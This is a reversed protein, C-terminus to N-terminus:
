EYQIELIQPFEYNDGTAIATFGSETGSPKLILGETYLLRRESPETLIGTLDVTVYGDNPSAAALQGTQGIKNNWTSGFSCFRATPAFVSLKVGTSYFCPIHLLVKRVYVSYLEPIKSFDPRTYLWQEGFWETRGIFAIGGFANNEDPRISEVTTDQFLKPEYLNIEFRIWANGAAAATVEYTYEDIQSYAVEAPSCRSNTDTGTLPSLSFFPRFEEQMIAFSKSCHRVRSFPKDTRITLKVLASNVTVALGNLTPVLEGREECLRGNQLAFGDIPLRVSASGESNKLVIQDRYVTVKANSGNFTFAEGAQEFRRCVLKLSEQSYIPTGFCYATTGIKEKVLLRYRNRNRPDIEINSTGRLKSIERLVTRM